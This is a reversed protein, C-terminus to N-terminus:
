LNNTLRRISTASRLRLASRGPTLNLNTVSTVASLLTAIADEVVFIQSSDGVLGAGLVAERLNFRYADSWYAPTGLIVGQLDELAADLSSQDEFGGARCVLNPVLLGEHNGTTASDADTPPSYQEQCFWGFYGAAGAFRATALRDVCGSGPVISVGAYIGTVEDRDPIGVKLLLKFNQLLFQGATTAAQRSDSSNASDELVAVSPIRCSPRSSTM